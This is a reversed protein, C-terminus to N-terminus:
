VLRAILDTVENKLLILLHASQPSDRFFTFENFAYAQNKQGNQSLTYTLKLPFIIQREARQVRENLGTLSPDNCMKGKDGYNLGFVPIDVGKEIQTHLASLVSGDGGLVVHVNAQELDYQGYHMQCFSCAEDAEPKGSEFHFKFIPQKEM